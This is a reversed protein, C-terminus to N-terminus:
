ALSAWRKDLNGGTLILNKVKFFKLKMKTFYHCLSRSYLIYHMFTSIGNQPLNNMYITVAMNM